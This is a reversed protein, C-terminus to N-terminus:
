WSAAGFDQDNTRMMDKVRGPLRTMRLLSVRMRMYLSSVNSSGIHSCTYIPIFGMSYWSFDEEGAKQEISLEM